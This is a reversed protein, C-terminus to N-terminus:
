PGTWAVDTARARWSTDASRLLGAPHSSVATVVAKGTLVGGGCTVMAAPVAVTFRLPAAAATPLCANCCISAWTSQVRVLLEEWCCCGMACLTWSATLPTTFAEAEAGAPQQPGWPEM